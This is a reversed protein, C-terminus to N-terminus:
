KKMNVKCAKRRNQFFETLVDGCEKNYEWFMKTYLNLNDNQLINIVSGCAGASPDIAGIHIESIRAQAIAGACMICPELTVYLICGNLRWSNLRESAEKIALVEAHALPSNLTERLNHARSIIKGKKVIVAGVPVENLLLAKKAEELAEKMFDM